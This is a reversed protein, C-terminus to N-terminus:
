KKEKVYGIYHNRYLIQFYQSIREYLPEAKEGFEEKVKGAIEYITKTGDMQKWVFSGFEDLSIYSFRPRKFLKQAVWNYFGKNEVKIVVVGKEESWEYGPACVPVYDLYNEKKKESM